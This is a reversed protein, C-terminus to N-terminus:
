AQIYSCTDRTVLKTFNSTGLSGSASTTILKPANKPWWSSDADENGDVCEGSAWKSLTLQISSIYQSGRTDLILGFSQRDASGNVAGCWQIGRQAQFSSTGAFTNIVSGASETEIGAGVYVGAVTPNLYTFMITSNLSNSNSTVYEALQTM